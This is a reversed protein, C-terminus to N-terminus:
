VRIISFLYLQLYSDCVKVIETTVTYVIDREVAAYTHGVRTIVIKVVIMSVSVNM